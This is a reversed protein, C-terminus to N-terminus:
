ANDHAPAEKGRARALEEENDVFRINEGCFPCYRFCVDISDYGCNPCKYWDNCWEDHVYKGNRNIYYTAM